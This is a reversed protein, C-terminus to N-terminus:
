IVCVDEKVRAVEKLAAALNWFPETQFLGALERGARELKEYADLLLNARVADWYVAASDLEDGMRCVKCKWSDM